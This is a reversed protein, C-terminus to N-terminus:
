QVLFAEARQTATTFIYVQRGARDARLRCDLNLSLFPVQITKGGAKLLANRGEVGQFIGQGSKGTDSQLTVTDGIAYPPHTQTLDKAIDAEYVTVLADCTMKRLWKPNIPRSLTRPLKEKLRDSLLDRNSELIPEYFVYGAIFLLLFFALFASGIFSLPNRKKKKPATRLKAPLEVYEGTMRNYGCLMCLVAEKTM